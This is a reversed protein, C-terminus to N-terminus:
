PLFEFEDYTVAQSVGALKRLPSCEAQYEITEDQVHLASAAASREKKFTEYTIPQTDTQSCVWPWFTEMGDRIDNDDVNGWKIQCAAEYGAVSAHKSTNTGEGFITLKQVFSLKSPDKLDEIDAPTVVDLASDAEYQLLCDSGSGKGTGVSDAVIDENGATPAIVPEAPLRPDKTGKGICM